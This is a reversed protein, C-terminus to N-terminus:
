KKEALKDIKKEIREMSAKLAKLDGRIEAITERRDAENASVRDKLGSNATANYSGLGLLMMFLPVGIKLLLSGNKKPTTM